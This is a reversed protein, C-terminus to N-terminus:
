TPFYKLAIELLGKQVSDSYWVGNTDLYEEIYNLRMGPHKSAIGAFIKDVRKKDFGHLTTTNIWPSRIKALEQLDQTDFIMNNTM